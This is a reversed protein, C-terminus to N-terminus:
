PYNMGIPIGSCKYLPFDLWRWPKCRSVRHPISLSKLSFVVNDDCEKLKTFNLSSKMDLVLKMCMIASLALM